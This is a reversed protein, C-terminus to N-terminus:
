RRLIPCDDTNSNQNTHLQRDIKRKLSRFHVMILIATVIVAFTDSVPFSMWIGDLRYYHPLTLLLPILFIVQRTLSLFISQGVKGISQFFNTSVIQFGVFSFAITAISLSNATVDILAQDTTFIRAISAPCTTSFLSGLVCLLTSVGVALWFARKLRHLNGAGYNYGVIPQMGQCIGIIVMVILSTYTTFIGAAGVANDGGYKLLSTNILMNIASAAVNVLAPAAGISIISLVVAFNLRYTGRKFRLTSAPRMFHAFVYATMGAMALDTALAAGRIGLGFVFIFLPALVANTLASYIMTMMARRPYGSARQINNFSFGLNTLLLGPLLWTMFDHAYPLTRDSAGFAILIDDLFVAFVTIYILAIVTTLVLANGLIKEALDHRKAGLQISVRASAGAGVLVGLATAINMVPFTVALGAIAEAGNELGQGIFVRDIVNYLSMVVMGVVAPLSYDWLLRGVPRTALDNLNGQISQNPRSM